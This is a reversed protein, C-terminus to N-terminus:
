RILTNVKKCQIDYLRAVADKIMKKNAKLDVLFVQSSSLTLLCYLVVTRQM